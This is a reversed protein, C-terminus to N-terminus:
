SRYHVSHYLLCDLLRISTCGFNKVIRESYQSEVDSRKTFELTIRPALYGFINTAQSGTSMSIMISVEDKEASTAKIEDAKKESLSTAKKETAKKARSEKEAEKTSKPAKAHPISRKSSFCRASNVDLLFRCPTTALRSQSFLSTRSYRALTSFSLM